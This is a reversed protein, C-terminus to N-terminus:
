SSTDSALSNERKAICIALNRVREVHGWDHCGSAGEFFTKAIKEIKKVKERTITM